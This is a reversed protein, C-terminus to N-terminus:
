EVRRPNINSWTIGWTLGSKYANFYISDRGIIENGSIEYVAKFPESEHDIEIKVTDSPTVKNIRVRYRSRPDRSSPRITRKRIITAM